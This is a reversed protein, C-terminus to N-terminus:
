SFNPGKLNAWVAALTIWRFYSDQWTVCRQKFDKRVDRDGFCAGKPCEHLELLCVPEMLVHIMESKIFYAAHM